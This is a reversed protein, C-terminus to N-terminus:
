IRYAKQYAVVQIMMLTLLHSFKTATLPKKKFQKISLKRLPFKKKDSESIPTENIM